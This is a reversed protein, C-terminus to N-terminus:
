EELQEKLREWSDRLEKIEEYNGLNESESKLEKNEELMAETQSKLEATKGPLNASKYQMVAFCIEFALILVFVAALIKLRRFKRDDAISFVFTKKVPRLKRAPKKKEEPTEEMGSGFGTYIRTQSMSVERAAKEAERAQRDAEAQAEASKLEDDTIFGKYEKRQKEVVRTGRDDFNDLNQTMRTVTRNIPQPRIEDPDGIWTHRTAKGSATNNNEKNESQLTDQKNEEMFCWVAGACVM